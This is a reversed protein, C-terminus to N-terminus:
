KRARRIIIVVNELTGPTIADGGRSTVNRMRLQCPRWGTSKGVQFRVREGCHTAEVRCGDLGILVPCLGSNDRLRDRQGYGIGRWLQATMTGDAIM